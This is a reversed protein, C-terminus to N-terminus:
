ETLWKTVKRKKVKPIWKEDTEVVSDRIDTWQDEPNKGDVKLISFRNKFEVTYKTDINEIDYKPTTKNRKTQKLKKKVIAILM